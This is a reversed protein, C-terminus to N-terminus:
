AKAKGDQEQRDWIMRSDFAQASLMTFIVSLAFTLAAPGPTITVVINLQVLSALIAVVFVDIMSWRGIYEVVEYVQQRRVQGIRSGRRVSLALFAIAVFKAIPIGVSALLIVFAIGYAGHSALEIVGGVITDSQNYVLTRTELMPYLNAPIYAMFGAIWWAWVRQLSQTDRSVLKSGCRACRTESLPWVRTCRTCAVLGAERATVIPGSLPETRAM